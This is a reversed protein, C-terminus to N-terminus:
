SLKDLTMLGRLNLVTPGPLQRLIFFCTGQGDPAVIDLIIRGQSSVTRKVVFPQQGTPNADELV